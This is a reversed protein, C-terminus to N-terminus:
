LEERPSVTSPTLLNFRGHGSGQRVWVDLLSLSLGGVEPADRPNAHCLDDHIVQSVSPGGVLDATLVGVQLRGLDMGGHREVEIVLRLDLLFDLGFHLKRLLRASCLRSRGDPKSELGHSRSSHGDRKVKVHVDRPRDGLLKAPAADIDQRSGFVPVVLPNVFLKEETRSVQTPDQERLVDSEFGEGLIPLSLSFRERSQEEAMLGARRDSMIDPIEFEDRPRRFGLFPLVDNTM